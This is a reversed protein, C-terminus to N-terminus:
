QIEKIIKLAETVHQTAKFQSNFIHRIIGKKDIIYTVRGPFLGLTKSVGFMKRVEGNTDSLLTFPLRHHVAFNKHSEPSDSSIGIVEAGAQKFVDFSDRFACSEATCGPTEDKPYFYIVLIKQGVLKNPSFFVGEQNKLSFEPLKDGEKLVTKM